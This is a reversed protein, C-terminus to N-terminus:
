TNDGDDIDAASFSTSLAALLATILSPDARHPTSVQRVNDNDVHRHQHASISSVQCSKRHNHVHLQAKSTTIPPTQMIAIISVPIVWRVRTWSRLELWRSTKGAILGTQSVSRALVICPQPPLGFTLSSRRSPPPFLHQLSSIHSHFIPGRGCARGCACRRSPSLM